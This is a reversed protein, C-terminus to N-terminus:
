KRAVRSITVKCELRLVLGSIRFSHHLLTTIIIVHVLSFDHRLGLHDHWILESLLGKHVFTNFFLLHECILRDHYEILFFMCLKIILHQVLDTILELVQVQLLRLDLELSIM